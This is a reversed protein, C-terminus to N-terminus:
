LITDLAINIAGSLFERRAAYIRNVAAEVETLLLETIGSIATAAARCAM